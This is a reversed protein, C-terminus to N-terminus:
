NLYIEIAKILLDEIDSGTEAFHETIKIRVNGYEFYEDMAQVGWEM